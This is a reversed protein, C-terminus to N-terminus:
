PDHVLSVIDIWFTMITAMMERFVHLKLPKTLYANAHERYGTECDSADHSTTLIIVPIVGLTHDAKITRLVEFGHVKPISLDLFILHPIEETTYPDQRTLRKLADEGDRSITLEVPCQIHKLTRQMILIDAEADEIYLVKRQTMTRIM